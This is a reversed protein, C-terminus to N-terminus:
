IITCNGFNGGARSIDMRYVNNLLCMWTNVCLMNDILRIWNISRQNPSCGIILCRNSKRSDLENPSYYELDSNM